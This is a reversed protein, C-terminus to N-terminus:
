QDGLYIVKKVKRYTRYQLTIFYIGGAARAGRKTLGDWRLLKPEGPQNINVVGDTLRRVERGTIDFVSVRISATEPIEYLISVEGSFPNPAPPYLVFHTDPETIIVPVTDEVALSEWQLLAAEANDKLDEVGEGAIVAFGFRVTDDVAIDLPGIGLVHSYDNPDTNGIPQIGNSLHQFKELDTYGDWIEDPNYVSAYQIPSGNSFLRLGGCIEDSITDFIYALQLDADFGPRNSGSNLGNEGVDWDMFLGAYLGHVSHNEAPTLAYSLLIYDGDMDNDFAYANQLVQVGLANSAESDQFITFAEVDAYEGPNALILDGGPATSFDENAVSDDSGRAVDSVSDPSVAAMFAGEFLLNDMGRYIFGAGQTNDPYDTYGLSGTSSLTLEVNKALISKYDPNVEFTFYDRDSYAGSEIHVQIAIEEGRGAQDSIQIRLPDESNDDTAMTNFGSFSFQPNEIVADPHTTSFTVTVPGASALYNRFQVIAEATEGPALIGDQNAQASERVEVDVIRISPSSVTLARYADIRGWGLYDEFGPNLDDIPVASVRVQERAQDGTWDPHYAMVLATVGAAVPSSFSTGQVADYDQYGDTSLISQGPASVDVDPGYNSFYSRHDSQNTSGVSLVQRYGAPFDSGYLNSNGSAAIIVAGRNVAYEIVTREAQSVGPGGFSCNIIDAGMDAAYAIGQYAFRVNQDYDDDETVKVALLRVNFAPAAVGTGNDTVAGASGAVLTGHFRDPPLPSAQGPSPDNDENGFDWGYVDDTYGNGDDDIGNGPIEDPNKWINDQLDPHDLEIGTDVIGILVSEDGQCLDWAQPCQIHSLHWQAAIQPDDPQYSLHRIYVPEAWEVAPDEMLQEAATYVDAGASIEVHRLSSLTTGKGIHAPFAPRDSRANVRHLTKQWASRGPKALGERIKVIVQGPVVPNNKLLSHPVPTRSKSLTGSAARRASGAAPLLVMLVAMLIRVFFLPRFVAHKGSEPNLNFIVLPKRTQTM